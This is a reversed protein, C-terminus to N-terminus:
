GIGLVQSQVQKVMEDLEKELAPDLPEPQHEQLLKRARQNARQRIDKEGDEHWASYSRRDALTPLYQEARLHQMTHRERLYNGGPGVRHILAAALTDERVEIGSIARRVYGAIEDDIVLKELSSTLGADIVGAV